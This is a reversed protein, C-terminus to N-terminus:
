TITILHFEKPVEIKFYDNERVFAIERGDVLVTNILNYGYLQILFKSYNSQYQGTIEQTISFQGDGYASTSFNRITSAGNEYAKTKGDDEYLVSKFTGRYVHLTLIEFEFEDVYLMVPQMPIVAGARVFLPIQDLPTDIEIEQRGNSKENTWYNFWEGRPLYMMRKTIGSASVPCVLIYDGLMFEEERFYSESNDQAVLHFPRIM